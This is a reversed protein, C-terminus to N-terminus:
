SAASFEQSYSLFNTASAGVTNADELMPNWMLFSQGSTFTGAGGIQFRVETLNVSGVSGSVSFQQWLPAVQVQHTRAVALGDASSTTIYLILTQTAGSETRLWVSGSVTEGTM